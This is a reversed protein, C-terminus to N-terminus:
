ETPPEPTHTPDQNMPDTPPLAFARRSANVREQIEHEIMAAGAAIIQAKRKDWWERLAFCTTVLSWGILAAFLGFIAWSQWPLRPVLAEFWYYIIAGPLTGGLLLSALFVSACHWAEKKKARAVQASIFAGVSAGVIACIDPSVNMSAAAAFASVGCIIATSMETILPTMEDNTQQRALDMDESDCDPALISSAEPM